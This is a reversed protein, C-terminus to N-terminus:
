ILEELRTGVVDVPFQPRLEDYGGASVKDLLLHNSHLMVVVATVLASSLGGCVGLFCRPHNNLESSAVCMEALVTGHLEIVPQTDLISVM